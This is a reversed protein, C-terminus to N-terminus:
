AEDKLEKILLALTKYLVPCMQKLENTEGTPHTELTKNKSACSVCLLSVFLLILLKSKM